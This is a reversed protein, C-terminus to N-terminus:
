DPAHQDPLTRHSSARHYPRKALGGTINPAAGPHGSPRPSTLTSLGPDPLSLEGDTTLAGRGSHLRAILRALWLRLRLTHHQPHEADAPEDAEPAAEAALVSAFALSWRSSEQVTEVPVTRLNGPAATQATSASAPRTM